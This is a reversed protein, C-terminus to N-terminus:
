GPPRPHAGATALSEVAERAVREGRCDYGATTKPNAHGAIGQVTVLAGGHGAVAIDAHAPFHDRNPDGRTLEVQGISRCPSTFAAPPCTGIPLDERQPQCPPILPGTATGRFLLWATMAQTMNSRSPAERPKSDRARRWLSPAGLRRGKSIGQLPGHGARRNDARRLGCRPGGRPHRRPRWHPPPFPASAILKEIQTTEM